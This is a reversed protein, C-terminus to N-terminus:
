HLVQLAEMTTNFAASTFWLVLPRRLVILVENLLLILHLSHNLIVIRIGILVINANNPAFKYPLFVM